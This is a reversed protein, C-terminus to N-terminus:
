RSKNLVSHSIAAETSFAASPLYTPAPNAFFSLIESRL